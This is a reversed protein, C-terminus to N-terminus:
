KRVVAIIKNTKRAVFNTEKTKKDGERARERNDVDIYANFTLRFFSEAKNNNKKKFTRSAM